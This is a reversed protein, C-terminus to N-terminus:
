RRYYYKFILFAAAVLALLVLLIPFMNVMLAGVAATFLWISGSIFGLVVALVLLLTLLCFGGTNKFYTSSVYPFVSM